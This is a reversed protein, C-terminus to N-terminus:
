GPDHLCGAIGGDFGITTGTFFPSNTQVLCLALHALDAPAGIEGCPHFRALQALGEPDAAFGATLMDTAIAAPELNLVRVRGGLDLALARTLAGLAAKSTAYAAFRRKTLRAHISGINLVCGRAAELEPLLAQTLFFPALLNVDLTARWDARTLNATDGLIQLAANNILVNLGQGALQQRVPGLLRETRDSDEVLEALDAQLYHAASLDAPELMRDTAIVRYGAAQFTKVLVCGIGGAAGTILATPTSLQNSM